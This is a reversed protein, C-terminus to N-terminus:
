AITHGRRRPRNRVAVTAGAGIAALAGIATAGIAADGWDFGDNSSAVPAPEQVVYASAPRAYDSGEPDIPEMVPRASAAPAAMAAVIGAVALGRRLRHTNSTM